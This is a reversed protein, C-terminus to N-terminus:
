REPPVWPQPPAPAAAGPAEVLEELMARLLRNDGRHAAAAAAVNVEADMAAWRVRYGADRALQALFARQTRGNGERFPHLANVDALLATLRDVFAARGLGRLYGERALQGFVEGAFSVLHQPLCFPQGKGISVTRLEGAWDYVDGFIYRHFGQLHVLDYCGPLPNLRLEILRYSTLEAEAQALEAKDTIGLRNRLVGSQLDLYPDWSM